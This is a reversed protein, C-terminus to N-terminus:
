AGGEGAVVHPKLEEPLRGVVVISGGSSDHSISSLLSLYEEHSLELLQRLRTLISVDRTKIRWGAGDWRFGLRKLEEKTAYIREWPWERAVEVGNVVVVFRPM